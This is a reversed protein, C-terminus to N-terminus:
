VGCSNTTHNFIEKYDCNSCSYEIEMVGSCGHHKVVRKTIPTSNFTVGSKEDKFSKKTAGCNPCDGAELIETTQTKSKYYLLISFLVFLFLFLLSVITYM